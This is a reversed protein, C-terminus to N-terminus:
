IKNNEKFIMVLESILNKCSFLTNDYEYGFIKEFNDKTKEDNRNNIAYCMRQKIAKSKKDHNLMTSLIECIDNLKFDENPTNLLIQVAKNIYITGAIGSQFGLLRLTNHIKLTQSPEFKITKVSHM